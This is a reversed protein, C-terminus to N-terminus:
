QDLPLIERNPHGHPPQGPQGVSETLFQFVQFRRGGQVERVVVEAANM